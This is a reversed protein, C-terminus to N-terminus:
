RAIISIRHDNGTDMTQMVHVILGTGTLCRTDVSHMTVTM